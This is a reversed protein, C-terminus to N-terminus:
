TSRPTAREKAQKQARSEQYRHKPVYLGQAEAQNLAENAEARTIPRGNLTGLKNLAYLQLPSAVSM